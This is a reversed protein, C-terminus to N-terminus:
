LGATSDLKIKKSPQTGEEETEEGSDTESSLLDLLKEDPFLLNQPESERAKKRRRRDEVKKEIELRKMNAQIEEESKALDDSTASADSQLRKKGYLQDLEKLYVATEREIEDDTKHSFYSFTLM